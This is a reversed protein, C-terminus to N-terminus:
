KDLQEKILELRRELADKEAKLDEQSPTYISYRRRFGRGYGRGVYSANGQCRGMGRGTLAGQGEPGTMDGRPM